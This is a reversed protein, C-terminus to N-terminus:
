LHLVQFASFTYETGGSPYLQELVDQVEDTDQTVTLNVTSEYPALIYESPTIGGALAIDIIDLIEQKVAEIEDGM